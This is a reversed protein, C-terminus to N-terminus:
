RQDQYKLWHEHTWGSKGTRKNYVFDWGYNGELPQGIVYCYDTLEDGLYAWGNVPTTNNPKAHMGAGLRSATNIFPGNHSPVPTSAATSAASSTALVGLIAATSAASVLILLSRHQIM